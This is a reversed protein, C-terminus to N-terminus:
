KGTGGKLRPPGDLFRDQPAIPMGRLFDAAELPKKGARQLCEIRVSGQGCSVLIGEPVVEMVTGPFEHEGSESEVRIKHLILTEAQGEEQGQSCFLARTRPWPDFARIQRDIEAASRKWSVWGELKDIKPALTAAADDQEELEAQGALLAPLHEMLLEAARESLFQEAEEGTVRAPPTWRSVGVVPGADLAPVMRYLSVGLEEDGALLARVVPAAGRWRPLISGHLNFCGLAVSSIFSKGLILRIDATIVLDAATRHLFETGSRGKRREVEFIELGLQGAEAKLPCPSSQRNRGQRADPVTGVVLDSCGENLRRLAPIGFPGSGLFLVRM